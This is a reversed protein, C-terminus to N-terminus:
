FWLDLSKDRTKGVMGIERISIDFKTDRSFPSIVGKGASNKDESQVSYVLRLPCFYPSSTSSLSAMGGLARAYCKKVEYSELGLILELAMASESNHVNSTMGLHGVVFENGDYPVYRRM